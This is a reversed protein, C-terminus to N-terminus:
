VEVIEGTELDLGVSMKVNKFASARVRKLVRVVTDKGFAHVVGPMVIHVNEFDRESVAKRTDEFLRLWDVLIEDVDYYTHGPAIQDLDSSSIGNGDTPILESSVRMAEAKNKNDEGGEAMYKNAYYGVLYKALGYVETKWLLKIPSLYNCDGNVTFYGLIHESANDTDMVVGGRLGGIHWLYMMRLRAKINGEAIPTSEGGILEKNGSLCVSAAEYLEQINVTYFEDCFAEGVLNASSVECDQNTKAMLSVGILKVGTKKSVESCVAAVVTSDIGGSVGLVMSKLGSKTVYAALGDVMVNFIKDFNTRM